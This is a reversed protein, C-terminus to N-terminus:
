GLVWDCQGKITSFALRIYITYYIHMLPVEITVLQVMFVDLQIDNITKWWKRKPPGRNYGRAIWSSTFM